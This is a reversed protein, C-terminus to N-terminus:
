LSGKMSKHVSNPSIVITKWQKKLLQSFINQPGVVYIMQLNMKKLTNTVLDWRVTHDYGDLLLQRFEAPDQVLGGDVDSVVAYNLPKFMVQNFIETKLKEKLGSLLRSHIPQQMTHTAMMKPKHNVKEKLVKISKSPGCLCVVKGLNGVLELYMNDTQFEKIISYAGDISLNYIFITQYLDDFSQYFDRAVKAAEHTLWIAESYTLSGTKVGAAMGGFSPGIILDSKLNYVDNYHDMLAVTNALFSCERVEYDLEGSEKFAESLSYGIVESAETFRRKAFESHHLFGKVDEYTSPALGPLVMGNM